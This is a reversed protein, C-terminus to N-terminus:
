WSLEDNKGWETGKRRRVTVSMVWGGGEQGRNWETGRKIHLQNVNQIIEGMEGMIYFRNYGKANGQESIITQPLRIEEAM